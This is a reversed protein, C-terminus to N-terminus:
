RRRFLRRGGGRSRKTTPFPWHPASRGQALASPARARTQQCCQFAREPLAVWESFYDAAISLRPVTDLNRLRWFGGSDEGGGKRSRFRLATALESPCPKLRATRHPKQNPAKAGSTSGAALPPPM